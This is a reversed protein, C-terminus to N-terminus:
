SGVVQLKAQQEKVVAARASEVATSGVRVYAAAAEFRRAAPEWGDAREEHDFADATLLEPLNLRCCGCGCRKMRGFVRREILSEKDDSIGALELRDRGYTFEALTDFFRDQLGNLLSRVSSTKPLSPPVIPTLALTM